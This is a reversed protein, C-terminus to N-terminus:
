FLIEMKKLSNKQYTQDCILAGEKGFMEFGYIYLDSYHILMKSVAAPDFEKRKFADKDGFDNEGTKGDRTEFLFRINPAM